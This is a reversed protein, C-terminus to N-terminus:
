LESEPRPPRDRGRREGGERGGRRGFGRSFLARRDIEIVEGKMAIYSAQQAENLVELAAAETERRLLEMQERMETMKEEREERSLDRVGSFLERQMEREAEFVDKLQQTQDTTLGLKEVTQDDVLARVGRLQFQIEDLRKQQEESLVTRIKAEAEEVLKRGHERLEEMRARREEEPLDRIGAFQSFDPRAEEGIARLKELQAEDIKLEQHVQESRLLMVANIPGGRGGRGFFGGGRGGRRGPEQANGPLTFMAALAVALLSWKAVTRSRTM